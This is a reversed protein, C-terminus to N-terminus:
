SNDSGVCAAGLVIPLRLPQILQLIDLSAVENSEVRVCQGPSVKGIDRTIYIVADASKPISYRVIISRRKVIKDVEVGLPGAVVPGVALGAVQGVVPIQRFFDFFVGVINCSGAFDKQFLFRSRLSPDSTKMQGITEHFDDFVQRQQDPCQHYDQYTTINPKSPLTTGSSKELDVQDASQGAKSDFTQLAIQVRINIVGKREGDSSPPIALCARMTQASNARLWTQLVPFDSSSLREGAASAIFSGPVGKAAKTCFDNQEALQASAGNACGVILLGALACHRLDFGRM